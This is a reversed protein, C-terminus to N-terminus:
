LKLKTKPSRLASIPVAFEDAYAPRWDEGYKQGRATFEALDFFRKAPLWGVLTALSLAQNCRVFYYIDCKARLKEKKDERGFIRATYHPEPKYNAMTTKVDVTFGEPTVIDYNFEKSGVRRGGILEHVLIEGMCGIKNGRGKTISGYLVGM